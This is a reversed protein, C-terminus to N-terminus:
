AKFHSRLMWAHKEHARLREIYMDATAQDGKSLTFDIWGPIEKCISEHDSLLQRLMQDGSLGRTEPTEELTSLELFQSMSGPAIDGVQRIQEAILDIAEALEKYQEEFFSHLASFRPDTINWHFNQTKVYVIYTNALLTCLTESISHSLTSETKTTAM